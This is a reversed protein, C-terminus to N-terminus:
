EAFSRIHPSGYILAELQEPRTRGLREIVGEWRCRIGGDEFSRDSFLSRVDASPDDTLTQMRLIENKLGDSFSQLASSFEPQAVGQQRAKEMHRVFHEICHPLMNEIPTTWDKFSGTTELLMFAIPFGFADLRIIEDGDDYYLQNSRPDTRGLVLSAAAAQGLFFALQPLFGARAYFLSPIKDTAIGPIYDREFYYVPITSAGLEDEIDIQKFEPIPLGLTRIAVLRDIIFDRYIRTDTIAQELSLGQKIRHVVDWKSMRIHRIDKQDDPLSLNVIFVEREEGAQNRDTLPTVISGVNISLFDNRTRLYYEILRKIRDPTEPEFRIEDEAILAGPLWRINLYFEPGLGLAWEATTREDINYLRCLVTARWLTNGPDDILLDPGAREAFERLFREYIIRSKEIQQVPRAQQATFNDDPEPSGAIEELIRSDPEKGAPVLFSLEPYGQHNLLRSLHIIEQICALAEHTHESFLTRVAEAEQYTLVHEGTHKNHFFRVGTKIRTRCHCLLDSFDNEMIPPPSFRWIEGRLRLAKRVEALHHGTFQIAAKPIFRQLLLDAALGKDINDQEIRLIIRERYINVCVADRCLNETLPSAEAGFVISKLYDIARDVQMGHIENRGTVALHFGPFITALTNLPKGTHDKALFNDGIITIGNIERPTPNM